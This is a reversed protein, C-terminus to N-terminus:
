NKKIWQYLIECGKACDEKSSYEEMRHSYGKKSRVFIMATPCVDKFNMCDHGAGSMLTMTEIQNEECLILLEKQINPDCHVASLHIAEKMTIRSGTVEEMQKNYSQMEKIIDLIIDDQYSRLDLSFCVSQCIINYAGPYPSVKGITAVTNGYSKSLETIKLIWESMIVIPDCRDNMPTAGAHGSIGQIEIDFRKLGAIGSVIGIPKDNKELVKGQEIHLEIYSHIPDIKCAAYNNIHYGLQKAANVLTIGNEDKTNLGDEEILNCVSKSGIMGYGFRNGEEDEFGIVLFNRLLQIGDEYLCQAVEIAAIVGLCGDFIGGNKVSDYHSGCVIPPLTEDRGKMTGIVNGVDDKKVELHAEQMWKMLLEKAKEDEFTYPWRTISGDSNKGIKGLEHIREWLRNQNIRM